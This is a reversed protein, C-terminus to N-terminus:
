ARNHLRVSRFLLSLITVVGVMLMGDTWLIRDFQLVATAHGGDVCSSLACEGPPVDASALAHWWPTAVLFTVIPPLMWGASNWFQGIRSM